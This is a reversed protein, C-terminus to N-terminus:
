INGGSIHILFFFHLFAKSPIQKPFKLAATNGVNAKESCWTQALMIPSVTNAYRFILIVEEDTANTFNRNSWVETEVLHVEFFKPINFIVSFTVIPLFYSVLAKRWPNVGINTNWYTIPNTSAQLYAHFPSIIVFQM